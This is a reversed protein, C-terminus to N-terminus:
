RFAKGVLRSGQGVVENPKGESRVLEDGTRMNPVNTADARVGGGSNNAAFRALARQEIEDHFQGLNFNTLNSPMSAKRENTIREILSINNATRAKAREAFYDAAEILADTSLAQSLLCLTARDFRGDRFLSRPVTIVFADATVVVNKM